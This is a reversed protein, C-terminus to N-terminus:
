IIEIYVQENEFVSFVGHGFQLIDMVQSVRMSYFRNGLEKELKKDANLQTIAQDRTIKMTRM